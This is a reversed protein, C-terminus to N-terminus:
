LVKQKYFGSGLILYVLCCPYGTLRCTLLFGYVLPWSRSRCPMAKIDRVKGTSSGEQLTAHQQYYVDQM